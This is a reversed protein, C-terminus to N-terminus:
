AARCHPCRRSERLRKKGCDECSYLDGQPRSVIYIILGIVGTFLILVVWLAGNDMGRSKADKAAWVAVFVWFITAGVGIVLMIVGFVGCAACGAADNAGAREASVATRAAASLASGAPEAAGGGPPCLTMLVWFVFVLPMIKRASM